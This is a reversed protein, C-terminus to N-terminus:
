LKTDAGGWLHAYAECHILVTGYETLDLDEPIVYEQYGKNSKLEGIKISLRDVDAGRIKSINRSSFYVKLDPGNKTKFNDNFILIRSGDRDVINWEGKISYGKEVWSGSSLTVDEAYVSQSMVLAILIATVHKMFTKM